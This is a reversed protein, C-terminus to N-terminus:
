DLGDGDGLGTALGLGALCDGDGVEPAVVESTKVPLTLDLPAITTSPV